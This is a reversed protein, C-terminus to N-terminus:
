QIAVKLTSCSLDRYNREEMEIREKYSHLTKIINRNKHTHTPNSHTKSLNCLITVKKLTSYTLDEYNTEEMAIIENYESIGTHKQNTFTEKMPQLSRLRMQVPIGSLVKVANIEQGGHLCLSKSYSIVIYM